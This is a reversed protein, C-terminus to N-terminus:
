IFRSWSPDQTTSFILPLERTLQLDTFLNSAESKAPKLYFPTLRELFNELHKSTATVHKHNLLNIATNM